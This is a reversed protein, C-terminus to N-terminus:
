IAQARRAKRTHPAANGLASNPRIVMAVSRRPRVAGYISSTSVGVRCTIRDEAAWSLDPDDFYILDHDKIGTRSPRGTLVNCVTQYLCGVVRRWQPLRLKCIAALLRM